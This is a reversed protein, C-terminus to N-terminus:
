VSKNAKEPVLERTLWNSNRATFFAYVPIWFLLFTNYFTFVVAWVGDLASVRRAYILAPILSSLFGFLAGCYLAQFFMESSFHFCMGILMPFFVLPMFTGIILAVLHFAFALTSWRFRINRFFYLTILLNERVDSRIWRLLMKCFRGYTYPICTAAVANNQFTVRSGHKLIMTALARDEGINAAAGLFSQHLWDDLFPMVTSKRYASLAGPTCMVIGTLSQASRILEFGFMFGVDMMKPIMGDALNKIRINGAVGGVAPDHFASVMNRLSEKTVISDSDVTVVIDFKAMHFGRYLAHKKGGNKKLDLSEIRGESRSQASRIYEMTDDKSGDNVAIIQLKEAPYDSELLSLLTEAVHKGENYAPVIVTCGPLDQEKLVPATRYFTACVACFLTYLLLFASVGAFIYGQYPMSDTVLHPDWKYFFFLAMGAVLFWLIFSTIKDKRM